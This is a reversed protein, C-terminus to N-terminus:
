ITLDSQEQLEAAKMVLHSLAAAAVSIAVGIFVVILSLLFIGPHNMNLLLFVVNMTFFLVADIAALASIWSMYHANERSFSRDNGINVAIKWGLVLAAYCPLGCVWFLILWPYYCYDFEPNQGVIGQGLSPIIVFLVALGALGVGIIIIKLWKSLSKQKM